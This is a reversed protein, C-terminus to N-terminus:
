LSVLASGMVAEWQGQTVVTIGVLYDRTITVEHVPSEYWNCAGDVDMEDAFSEDRSLEAEDDGDQSSASRARSRSRSSEFAHPPPRDLAFGRARAFALSVNQRRM